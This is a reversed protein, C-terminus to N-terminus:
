ATSSSLRRTGEPAEYMSALRSTELRVKGRSNWSWFTRATSAYGRDSIAVIRASHGRGTSFGSTTTSM